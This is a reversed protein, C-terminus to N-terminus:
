VLETAFTVQPCGHLRRCIGKQNTKSRRVLACSMNQGTGNGHEPKVSTAQDGPLLEWIISERIHFYLQVEVNCM